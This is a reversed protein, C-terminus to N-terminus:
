EGKDEKSKGRGGIVDGFEMEIMSPSDNEKEGEFRHFERGSATEDM